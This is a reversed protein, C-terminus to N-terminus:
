LSATLGANRDWFYSDVTEAKKAAPLGQMWGLHLVTDVFSHELAEADQFQCRDQPSEPM